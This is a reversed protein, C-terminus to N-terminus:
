ARGLWHVAAWAALGCIAFAVVCGGLVLDIRLDASYREVERIRRQLEIEQIAGNPDRFEDLAIELEVARATLADGRLDHSSRKTM